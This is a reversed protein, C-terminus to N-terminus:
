RTRVYILMRSAPRSVLYEKIASEAALLQKITVSLLQYYSGDVVRQYRVGSSTAAQQYSSTVALLQRRTDVHARM